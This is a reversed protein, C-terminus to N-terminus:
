LHPILFEWHKSLSLEFWIGCLWGNPYRITDESDYYRRKILTDDWEWYNLFIIKSIIFSTNTLSPSYIKKSKLHLLLMSVFIFLIAGGMRERGGEETASGSRLVPRL